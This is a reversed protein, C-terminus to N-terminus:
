LRLLIDELTKRPRMKVPGNGYGITMFGQPQWEPPLGLVDRAIDPCFLPACIWCSALGAAHAALAVNHGAMASAQVAMLFEAQAREPDPYHDMDRLSLAFLVLVPAGVLRSRSRAIDAEIVAGADGDRLRDRQLRDGMAAAVAERKQPDQVLALRVPQRNHPSPASVACALIGNLLADPV